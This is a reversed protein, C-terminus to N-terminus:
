AVVQLLNPSVRWHQTEGVPVVAVTTMNVRTVHGVLTTGRAKFQVKDGVKFSPSFTRTKFPAPAAGCCGFAEDESVRRGIEAELNRLQARLLAEKRAAAARSIEGDCHLNEPSLQCFIGKIDRLIEADTRKPKPAVIVSVSVKRCLNPPVGWITGEPRTRAFGRDEDTRVKLKSPNVKVVTGETQEGNPRGFVVKDGVKFDSTFM